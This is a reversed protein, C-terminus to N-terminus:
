DITFFNFDESVVKIIPAALVGTHPMELMTVDNEFSVGFEKLVSDNKLNLNPIQFVFFNM